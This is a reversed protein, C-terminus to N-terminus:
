MLEGLYIASDRDESINRNLKRHPQSVDLTSPSRPRKRNLQSGSSVSTVTWPHNLCQAATLRKKPNGEMMLKIFQLAADKNILVSIEPPIDSVLNLLIKGLAWIDVANTYTQSTDRDRFKLLEIEPAIHLDNGCVTQHELYSGAIGFDALKITFIDNQNDWRTVLINEPKLDRHTIGNMHLYELASSVQGCVSKTSPLPLYHSLKSMMFAEDKEEMGKGNPVKIAVLYTTRNNLAKHVVGFSGSGLIDISRHEVGISPYEERSYLLYQTSLSGLETSHQQYYQKHREACNSIDPFEVRFRYEGGCHIIMNAILLLSHGKILTVSGVMIQDLATILLVGSTFNYCIYFYDITSKRQNDISLYPITINYAEGTGFRFGYRSPPKVSDFALRIVKQSVSYFGSSSEPSLPLYTTSPFASLEELHLDTAEHSPIVETIYHFNSICGLVDSIAAESQPRLYM